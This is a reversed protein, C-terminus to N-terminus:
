LCTSADGNTSGHVIKIELQMKKLKLLCIDGIKIFSYSEIWYGSSKSCLSFIYVTIVLLPYYHYNIVSLNLYFTLFKCDWFFSFDWM